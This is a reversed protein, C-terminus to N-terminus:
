TSSKLIPILIKDTESSEKLLFCHVTKISNIHIIVTFGYFTHNM